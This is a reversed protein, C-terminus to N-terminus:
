YNNCLWEALNDAQTTELDIGNEKDKFYKEDKAQNPNLFLVKTESTVPNKIQFRTIEIEEFLLLTEIAGMELAKMTDHVGFRIMGTDLAIQEFFRSILKKEAVFKVNALADAALTIAQNFGNEGGYSVDVIKVVIPQLRKDFMDSQSLENKFNASGALVLGKVNPM